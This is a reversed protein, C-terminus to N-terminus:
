LHGWILSMSSDRLFSSILLPTQIPLSSFWKVASDWLGEVSLDSILPPVLVPLQFPRDLLTPPFSLWHNGWLWSTPLCCWLSDWDFACVPRIRLWQVLVALKGSSEEPFWSLSYVHLPHPGLKTPASDPCPYILASVTFICEKSHRSTAVFPM